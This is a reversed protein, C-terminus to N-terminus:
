VVDDAENTEMTLPLFNVSDLVKDKSLIYAAKGIKRLALVMAHVSGLADGDPFTHCAVGIKQKNRIIESFNNMMM